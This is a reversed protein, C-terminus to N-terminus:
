AKQRNKINKISDYITPLYFRLFLKIIRPLCTTTLFPLDSLYGRANARAKAMDGRDAYLCALEYRLDALLNRIVRDFKFNLYSNINEYFKVVDENRSIRTLNSWVGGPHQRYSAMVANLYGIHGQQALLVELVWDSQGLSNVWDPFRSFKASPFMISCTPIFDSLILDDITSKEKQELSCLEYPPNRSDEFFAIVNHFCIAYDQHSKLFNVQAELKLPSTWCDDGELIAIFEGRCTALVSQFNEHMGLNRAPLLPRVVDPRLQAYHQVIQRTRDTSCDEGIVLEIPFSTIQMLVSEIAQAIFKEHNYTIMAVSVKPVVTTAPGNVFCTTACNYGKEGAYDKSGEGIWTGRPHHRL